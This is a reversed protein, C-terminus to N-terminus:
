HENVFDNWGCNWMNFQHTDIEWPNENLPFGLQASAWGELYCDEDTAETTTDVTVFEQQRTNFCETFGYEWERKLPIGIPDYSSHPCDYINRGFECARWGNIFARRYENVSATYTPVPINTIPTRSLRHRLRVVRAKSLIGKFFKFSHM